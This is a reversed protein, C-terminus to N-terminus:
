THLCTTSSAGNESSPISLATPATSTDCQLLRVISTDSKAGISLIEHYYSSFTFEVKFLNKVHYNEMM